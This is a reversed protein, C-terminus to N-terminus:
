NGGNLKEIMKLFKDTILDRSFEKARVLKPTADEKSDMKKLIEDAMRVIDGTPVLAGLKTDNLIEAPGSKCDTSVIKCGCALAEILVGPLGEYHSSLVFVDCRKMFNYPNEVNGPFSVFPLIGLKSAERELGLREEGEGLIILRANKTQLVKAFANLLMTYNKSATLRGASLIVPFEKRNLFPHFVEEEKRFLINETFVPNPIIFIKKHLSPFRNTLDKSSGESVAIIADARRFLLSALLKNLGHKTNLTFTSQESLIIKGRWKISFAALLVMLQIHTQAVILFDPSNNKLYKRLAFISKRARKRELDLLTIERSIQTRLGGSSDIVVVDTKLGKACFGNALNIMAREAGGTGLSGFIVAAHKAQKSM